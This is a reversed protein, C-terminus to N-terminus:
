HGTFDLYISMLSSFIIDLVFRERIKITNLKQKFVKRKYRLTQTKECYCKELVLSFLEDPIM